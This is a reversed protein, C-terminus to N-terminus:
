GRCQSRTSIFVTFDSHIISAQYINLQILQLTYVYKTYKNIYLKNIFSDTTSIVYCQIVPSKYIPFSTSPLAQPKM